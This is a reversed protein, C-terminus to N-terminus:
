SRPYRQEIEGSHRGQVAFARDADLAGDLRCPQDAGMDDDGTQAGIDGSGHGVEVQV